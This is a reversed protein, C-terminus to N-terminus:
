VNDINRPNNFINFENGIKSTQFPTTLTANSRPQSISISTSPALKVKKKANGFIDNRNISDDEFADKLTRKSM